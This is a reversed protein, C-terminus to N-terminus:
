EKGNEEKESTDFWSALFLVKKIYKGSTVQM